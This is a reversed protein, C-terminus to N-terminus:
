AHRSPQFARQMLTSDDGKGQGRCHILSCIADLSTLGIVYPMHLVNIGLTCFRPINEASGELQLAAARVM